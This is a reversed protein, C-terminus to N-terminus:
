LWFRALFYCFPIWEEYAWKLFIQIHAYWHLPPRESRLAEESKSPNWANYSKISFTQFINSDLTYIFLMHLTNGFMQPSRIMGGKEIHKKKIIRELHLCGKAGMIVAERRFLKQSCTHPSKSWLLLLDSDNRKWLWTCYLWVASLTNFTSWYLLVALQKENSYDSQTHDCPLQPHTPRSPHVLLYPM